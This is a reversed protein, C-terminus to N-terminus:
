QGDLSEQYPDKSASYFVVETRVIAEDLDDHTRFWSYDACELTQEADALSEADIEYEVGIVAYKTIAYIM